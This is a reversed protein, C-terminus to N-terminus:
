DCFGCLPSDPPAAFLPRRLYRDTPCWCPTMKMVFGFGMLGDRSGGVGQVFLTHSAGYEGSYLVYGVEENANAPGNARGRPSVLKVSTGNVIGIVPHKYTEGREYYFDTGRLRCGDQELYLTTYDGPQALEYKIRDEM